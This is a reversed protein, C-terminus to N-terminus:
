EDLEAEYGKHYRKDKESQTIVEGTRISEWEPEPELVAQIQGQEESTAFIRDLQQQTIQPFITTLLATTDATRGLTQLDKWFTEPEQTIYQELNALDESLVGTVRGPFVTEMLRGIREPSPEIGYLSGYRAVWDEQSLTPDDLARRAEELTPAQPAMTFFQEIDVDSIGLGRMTQETTPTRGKSLLDGAFADWDIDSVKGLTGIAPEAFVLAKGFEERPRGSVALFAEPDYITEFGGFEDRVVVWGINGALGTVRRGRRTFIDVM